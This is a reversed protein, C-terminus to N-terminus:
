YSRFHLKAHTQKLLYLFNELSLFIIKGGNKTLHGCSICQPKILIVKASGYGTLWWDSLNSWHKKSPSKPLTNKATTVAPKLRM